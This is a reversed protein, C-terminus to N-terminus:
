YRLVEVCEQPLADGCSLRRIAAVCNEGQPLVATFSTCPTSTELSAVCTETSVTAGCFFDFECLEQYIDQCLQRPVTRDALQQPTCDTPLEECADKKLAADIEEGCREVPADSLCRVYGVDVQCDQQTAFASCQEIAECYSIKWANCSGPEAEYGGEGDDGGDGDGDGDGAEEQEAEIPAIFDSCGWLFTLTIASLTRTLLPCPRLM